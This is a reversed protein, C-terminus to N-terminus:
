FWNLFDHQGNRWSMFLSMSVFLKKRHSGRNERVPHNSPTWCKHATHPVRPVYVIGDPCGAPLIPSRPSWNFNNIQWINIHRKQDRPDSIGFHSNDFHPRVCFLACFLVEAPFSQLCGSNSLNSLVLGLFQRLIKEPQKWFKKEHNKDNQTATVPHLFWPPVPETWTRNCNPNHFPELPETIKPEPPEELSPASKEPINPCLKASLVTGTGTETGPFRNRRNRNRTRNRADPM